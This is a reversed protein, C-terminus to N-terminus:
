PTILHKSFKHILPGSGDQRLDDVMSSIYLARIPKCPNIGFFNTLFCREKRSTSRQFAVSNRCNKNNVPGTANRPLSDSDTYWLQMNNLTPINMNTLRENHVCYQSKASWNIAINTVWKATTRCFYAQKCHAHGEKDMESVFYSLKPTQVIYWGKRKFMEQLIELFQDPLRVKGELLYYVSTDRLHVGEDHIDHWWTM